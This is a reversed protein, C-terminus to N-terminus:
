EGEPINPLEAWYKTFQAGFTTDYDGDIEWYYQKDSLPWPWINLTGIKILNKKNNDKGFYQDPMEYILVRDGVHLDPHLDENVFVPKWDVKSM